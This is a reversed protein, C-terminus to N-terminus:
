PSGLDREPGEVEHHAVRSYVADDPAFPFRGAPLQDVRQVPPLRQVLDGAEGVPFPFLHDGIRLSAGHGLEVVDGGGEDRSEDVEFLREDIVFGRAATREGAGEAHRGDLLPHAGEGHLPDFLVEADEDFRPRLRHLKGVAGEVVVRPPCVLDPAEDEFM